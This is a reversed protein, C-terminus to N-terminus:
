QCRRCFSTGWCYIGVCLLWETRVHSRQKSQQFVAEAERGAGIVVGGGVGTSTAAEADGACSAQFATERLDNIQVDEVFLAACNNEVTNINIM